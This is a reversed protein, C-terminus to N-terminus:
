NSTRYFSWGLRIEILDAVHRHAKLHIGAFLAKTFHYNIGYRQYVPDNFKTQDYIYIGLKQSFTFRGMLFEHGLLVAGRQYDSDSNFQNEMRWRLSGDWIWEADLTIASMRGVQQSVGTSAGVVLFYTPDELIRKVFSSLAVDYRRKKAGQYKQKLRDEFPSPNLTYDLGITATPYNIGKNPEKIGGNSIHNYNAALNIGFHENLRYNLALNLQLYVNIPLSYSFNDVNSVPNYPRTDFSLGGAPRISINLKKHSTFFPEVFGAVNFGYGLIERNDFDFFSFLLGVRPYCNCVEWSKKDMKHWNITLETGRPYSDEIARIARSHIIVFGYHERLGIVLQSQSNTDTVSSLTDTGHVVNVSLLFSLLYITCGRCGLSWKFRVRRNV